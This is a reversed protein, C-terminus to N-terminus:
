KSPLAISLFVSSFAVVSSRLSTPWPVAQAKETRRDMTQASMVSEVHSHSHTQKEFKNLMDCACVHFSLCTSEAFLFVRFSGASPLIKLTYM